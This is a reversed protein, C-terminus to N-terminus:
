RNPRFMPPPSEIREKARELEARVAPSAEDAVSQMETVAAAGWTRLFGTARVVRMASLEDGHDLADVLWSTVVAALAEALRFFHPGFAYESPQFRLFADLARSRELPERLVNSALLAHIAWCVVDEREDELHPWVDVTIEPAGLSAAAWLAMERERATSARALVGRILPVAEAGLPAVKRVLEPEVRLHEEIVEVARPGGLEVLLAVLLERAFRGTGLPRSAIADVAPRARVGLDRLLHDYAPDHARKVIADVAEEPLWAAASQLASLAAQARESRVELPVSQGIRAYRREIRPTRALAVREESMALLEPWVSPDLRCWAPHPSGSARSHDAVYSALGRFPEPPLSELLSLASVRVHAPVGDDLTGDFLERVAVRRDIETIVWIAVVRLELPEKRALALLDRDLTVGHEHLALWALWAYGRVHLSPHHALADVRETSPLADDLGVLLDEADCLARWTLDHAGQPRVGDLLTRLTWRTVRARRRERNQAVLAEPGPVRMTAGLLVDGAVRVDPYLADLPWPLRALVAPAERLTVRYWLWDAVDRMSDRPDEAARALRAELEVVIDGGDTM